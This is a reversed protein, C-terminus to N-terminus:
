QCSQSNIQQLLTCIVKGEKELKNKLVEIIFIQQLTIYMFIVQNTLMFLYKQVKRGVTM